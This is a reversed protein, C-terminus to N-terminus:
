VESLEVEYDVGQTQGAARMWEHYQSIKSAAETINLYIVSVSEGRSTTTVKYM